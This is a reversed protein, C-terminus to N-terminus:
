VACTNCILGKIERNDYIAIVSTANRHGCPEAIVEMFRTGKEYKSVAKKGDQRAFLRYAAQKFEGINRSPYEIKSFQQAKVKGTETKLIERRCTTLIEHKMRFREAPELPPSQIFSQVKTYFDNIM